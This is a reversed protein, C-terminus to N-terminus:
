GSCWVAFVFWFVWFFPGAMGQFHRVADMGRWVVALQIGSLLLFALWVALDLGLFSTHTLTMMAPIFRLLLLKLAISALYTQIGYWAIAVIGRVLAPINAGWIGWPM